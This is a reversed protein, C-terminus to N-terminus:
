NALIQFAVKDGNELTVTNSDADIEVVKDQIWTAKSPMVSKTAKMSQSLTKAGAGVLTWLPQYYHKQL